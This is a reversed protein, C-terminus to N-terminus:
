TSAPTTVIDPTTLSDRRSGTAVRRARATSPTTSTCHSSVAASAPHLADWAATCSGSRRRMSSTHGLHGGRIQVLDRHCQGIHTFAHPCWGREAEERSIQRRSAAKEDRRSEFGCKVVEGPEPDLLRVRILESLHHVQRGLVECRQSSQSEVALDTSNGLPPQDEGPLGQQLDGGRQGLGLQHLRVEQRQDTMLCRDGGLGSPADERCRAMWEDVEGQAPAVARFRAGLGGAQAGHHAERARAVDGGCSPVADVGGARHGVRVDLAEGGLFVRESGEGSRM